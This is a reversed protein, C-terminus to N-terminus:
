IMHIKEEEISLRLQHLTPPSLNPRIAGISKLMIKFSRLQAANFLFGAQYWWYAIDQHAKAVAEKNLGEEICIQRFKRRENKAVELASNFTLFANMQGKRKMGVSSGAVSGGSPARMSKEKDRRAQLEGDENEEDNIEVMNEDGLDPFYDDLFTIM